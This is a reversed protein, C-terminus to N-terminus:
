NLRMINVVTEIIPRAVINILILLAWIVIGSQAGKIGRSIYDKYIEKIRKRCEKLQKELKAKEKKLSKINDKSTAVELQAKIRPLRYTEISYITKHWYDKKEKPKIRKIDKLSFLIALSPFILVILPLSLFEYPSSDLSSV